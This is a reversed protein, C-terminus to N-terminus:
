AVAVGDVAPRASMEAFEPEGTHPDALQGVVSM